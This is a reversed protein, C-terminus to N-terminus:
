MTKRPILRNSGGRGHATSKQISGDPNVITIGPSIEQGLERGLQAVGKRVVMRIGTFSPEFFPIADTGKMAIARAIAMARDKTEESDGWKRIAWEMIKERFTGEEPEASGQGQGIPLSGYNVYKAYPVGTGIHVTLPDTPKEPLDGEKLNSGKGRDVARATAFSISNKLRETDTGSDDGQPLFRRMEAAGEEGIVDLAGQTRTILDTAMSELSM